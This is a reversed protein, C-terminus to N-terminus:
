AARLEARGNDMVVVNRDPVRVRLNVVDGDRWIETSLTEGPMIPSTFRVSM